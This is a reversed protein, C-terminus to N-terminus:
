LPNIIQSTKMAGYEELLNVRKENNQKKTLDEEM